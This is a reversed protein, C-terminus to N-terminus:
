LGNQSPSIHATCPLIAPGAEGHMIPLSPIQPRDDFSRILFFSTVKRVYLTDSGSNSPPWDTQRQSEMMCPASPDYHCEIVSAWGEGPCCLCCREATSGLRHSLLMPVVRRIFSDPIFSLSKFGSVLTTFPIYWNAVVHNVAWAVAAVVWPRVKGTAPM